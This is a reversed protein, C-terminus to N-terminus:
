VHARGIKVYSVAPFKDEEWLQWWDRQLIGGDGPRPSQQFQGSVAAPGMIREDRDVVSEPFREPFLLEGAEDRMDRYGLATPINREPEYRMPLCIHDYGLNQDLIVGSIDGEHLRQM